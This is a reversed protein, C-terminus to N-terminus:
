DWATSRFDEVSLPKRTKYEEVLADIFHQARVPFGIELWHHVQGECNKIFNLKLQKQGQWYDWSATAPAAGLNDLSVDFAYGAAVSFAWELAQPKVEVQLFQRQQTVDREDSCYWYGYDEQTRRQEGALCWHAIEHLASAFYDHRYYIMAPKNNKEPIYLPEAVNGVLQTNYDNYFCNHYLAELTISSHQNMATVQM